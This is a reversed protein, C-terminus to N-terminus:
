GFERVRHSVQVILVAFARQQVHVVRQEECSSTSKGHCRAACGADEFLNARVDCIARLMLWAAHRWWRWDHSAREAATTSLSMVVGVEPVSTLLLM